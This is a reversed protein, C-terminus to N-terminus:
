FQLRLLSPQQIINHDFNGHFALAIKARWFSNQVRQDTGRTPRTNRAFVFIMIQLVGAMKGANLGAEPSM